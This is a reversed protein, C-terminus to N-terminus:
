EHTGSRYLVGGANMWAKLIRQEATNAQPPAWLQWHQRLAQALPIVPGKPGTRLPIVAGGNGVTWMTVPHLAGSKNMSLLTAGPPTAGPPTAGPLTTGEMPSVSLPTASLIPHSPLWQPDYPELALTRSLPLLRLTAVGIMQRNLEHLIEPLPANLNWIAVDPRAHVAVIDRWGIRAALRAMLRNVPGSWHVTLRDTLGSVRSVHSVQVAPNALHVETISDLHRLAAASASASHNLWIDAQNMPLVPNKSSLSQPHMACGALGGGSLLVMALSATNKLNM